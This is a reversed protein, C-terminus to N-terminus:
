RGCDNQRDITACGLWCFRRARRQALEARATVLYRRIIQRGRGVRGTQVAPLSPSAVVAEEGREAAWQQELRRRAQAALLQRREQPGPTQTRQANLQGPDQDAGRRLHGEM